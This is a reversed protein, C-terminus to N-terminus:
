CSRRHDLLDPAREARPRRHGADLDAARAREPDADRAGRSRLPVRDAAARHHVPALLGPGQERGQELEGPQRRADRGPRRPADAARGALNAKRSPRRDPRQDIDKDKTIDNASLHARVRILRRPATRRSASRTSRSSESWARDRAPGGPESRRLDASTLRRQRVAIITISAIKGSAGGGLLPTALNAAKTSPASSRLFASNNDNVESLRAVPARRDHRDVVSFGSSSSRGASGCSSGRWHRTHTTSRDPDRM